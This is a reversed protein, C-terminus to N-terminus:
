RGGAKAEWGERRAVGQSPDSWLSAQRGVGKLAPQIVNGGAMM